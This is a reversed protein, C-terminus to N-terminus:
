PFTFEIENSGVNIFRCSSNVVTGKSDNDSEIIFYMHVDKNQFVSKCIEQKFFLAFIM